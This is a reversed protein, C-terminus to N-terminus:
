LGRSTLIRVRRSSVMARESARAAEAKIRAAELEAWDPPVTTTEVVSETETEADAATGRLSYIDIDLAKLYARRRSESLM